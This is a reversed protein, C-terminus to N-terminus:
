ALTRSLAAEILKRPPILAVLERDTRPAVISGVTQWGAAVMMALSAKRDALANAVPMYGLEIATRVARRTLADSIGSRRLRVDVVLRCIEAMERTEPPLAARWLAILPGEHAPAIGVHGVPIDSAVATWRAISAPEALWSLLDGARAYAPPWGPDIAVQAHLIALLAPDDEPAWPRVEVPGRSHSGTANTPAQTPTRM